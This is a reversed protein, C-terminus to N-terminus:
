PMDNNCPSQRYWNSVVPRIESVRSVATVGAVMVAGINYASMLSLCPLYPATTIRHWDHGAPTIMTTRSCDADGHLAIYVFESLCLANNVAINVVICYLM